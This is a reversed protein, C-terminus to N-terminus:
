DRDRYQYKEDRSLKESLGLLNTFESFSMLQDQIGKSTGKQLLESYAEQIAKASAFLGTLVYGVSLFGLNQYEELELVPTRGGEIVNVVLPGPVESAIRLLEERSRPAEVFILSAGAEKYLRGRRIAEEIGLPELADTRAIIAFGADGKAEKAARIKAIQEEASVVSKGALHGCRKPFTQDELLIGKAGMRILEKVMRQVNLVGGYGTDGDVIVSIKVAQCVRRAVELIETQTLIGLDPEALYSAAVAYGSVVVGQFGAKEAIRASLADWVGCSLFIKHEQILKHIKSM